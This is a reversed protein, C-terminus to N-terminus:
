EGLDENDVGTEWSKWGGWGGEDWGVLSGDDFDEVARERVHM